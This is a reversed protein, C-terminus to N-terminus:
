GREEEGEAKQNSNKPKQPGDSGQGQPNQSGGCGGGVPLLSSQGYKASRLPTAEMRGTKFPYTCTPKEERPGEKKKEESDLQRM